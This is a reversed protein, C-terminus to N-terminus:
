SYMESDDELVEVEEEEAEEIVKRTREKIIYL